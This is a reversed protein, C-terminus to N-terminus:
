HNTLAANVVTVETQSLPFDPDADYSSMSGGSQCLSEASSSSDQRLCKNDPDTSTQMCFTKLNMIVHM